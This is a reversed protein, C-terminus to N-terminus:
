RHPLKFTNFLKYSVTKLLIMSTLMALTREENGELYVLKLAKLRSIVKTLIEKVVLRDNIRSQAVVTKEIFLRHRNILQCSPLTPKQIRGPVRFITKLEPDMYGDANFFYRRPSIRFFEGVTQKIEEVPVHLNKGNGNVPIKKRGYNRIVRRVFQIKRFAGQRPKYRERWSQEPDIFTAFTEAFDDDPHKQAYFDGEPNVFDTSWPDWRYRDDEPYTQFFHGEVRFIERFEKLRYLKYAYCFAHGIEHKILRLIDGEDRYIDKTERLIERITKDADWFGLGITTSGEVCGYCDSLYFKPELDVGFRKADELAKGICTDLISSPIKLALDRVPTTLIETKITDRNNLLRRARTV